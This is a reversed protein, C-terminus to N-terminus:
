YHWSKCWQCQKQKWTGYLVKKKDWCQSVHSAVVQRANITIVHYWHTEKPPNLRVGSGGMAVSSNGGVYLTRTILLLSYDSGHSLGFTCLWRLNWLVCEWPFLLENHYLHITWVLTRFMHMVRVLEFQATRALLEWPTIPTSLNQGVSAPLTQALSCPTLQPTPLSLPSSSFIPTFLNHVIKVCKIIVVLACLSHTVWLWHHLSQVLLM